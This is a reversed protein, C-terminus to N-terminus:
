TLHKKENLDNHSVGAALILTCIKKMRKIRSLEKIDNYSKRWGTEKHVKEISQTSISKTEFLETNLLENMSDSIMETLNDIIDDNIINNQHMVETDNIDTNEIDNTPEIINACKEDQIQTDNERQKKKSYIYMKTCVKLRPSLTDFVEQSLSPYIFKMIDTNLTRQKVNCYKNDSAIKMVQDECQNKNRVM